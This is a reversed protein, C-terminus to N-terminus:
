STYYYKINECTDFAQECMFTKNGDEKRIKVSLFKTRSDKPMNIILKGNVHQPFICQNLKVKEPWPSCFWTCPDNVHDFYISYLSDANALYREFEKMTFHRHIKM